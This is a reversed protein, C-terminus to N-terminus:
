RETPSFVKKECFASGFVLLHSKKWYFLKSFTIEAIAM